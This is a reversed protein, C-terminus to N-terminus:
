IECVLLLLNQRWKHSSLFLNSFAIDIEESLLSRIYEAEQPSLLPSEDIGMKDINNLVAQPIDSYKNTMHYIQAVASTSSFIVFLSILISKM